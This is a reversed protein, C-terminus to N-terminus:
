MGLHINRCAEFGLVLVVTCARFTACSFYRLWVLDKAKYAWLNRLLEMSGSHPVASHPLSPGRASRRVYDQQSSLYACMLHLPVLWVVAIAWWAYASALLPEYRVAFAYVQVLHTVVDVAHDYVDGFDSTQQYTRAMHGDTSDWVYSAASCAVYAAVSGSWLYAAAALGCLLSYTTVVNPTHGTAHLSPTITEVGSLVVNDLPGELHPPLKRM